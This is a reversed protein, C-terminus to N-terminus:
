SEFIEADSPQGTSARPAADDGSVQSGVSTRRYAAWSDYVAHSTTQLM